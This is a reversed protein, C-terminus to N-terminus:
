PPACAIGGIPPVPNPTVCVCGGGCMGGLAARRPADGHRLTELACLAAPSPKSFPETLPLRAARRARGRRPAPAPLYPAPIPIPLLPSPTGESPTDGHSLWADGPRRSRTGQTGVGCRGAAHRPRVTLRAGRNDEGETQLDRLALRAPLCCRPVANDGGAGTGPVFGVSELCLRGRPARRGRRPTGRAAPTQPVPTPRQQEVSHYQEPNTEPWGRGAGGATGRRQALSPPPASWSPCGWRGWTGRQWTDCFWLIVSYYPNSPVETPWRTWGGLTRM